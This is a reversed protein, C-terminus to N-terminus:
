HAGKPLRYGTTQSKRPRYLKFLVIQHMIEVLLTHKKKQNTFSGRMSISTLKLTEAVDSKLHKKILTGIVYLPFYNKLFCGWMGVEKKVKGQWRYSKDDESLRQLCSPGLDAGVSRRDHDPDWGKPM